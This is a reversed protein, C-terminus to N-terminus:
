EWVNALDGLCVFHDGSIGATNTVDASKGEYLMRSKRGTGAYAGSITEIINNTVIANNDICGLATNYDYECTVIRKYEPDGTGSVHIGGARGIDTM